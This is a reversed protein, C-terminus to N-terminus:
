INSSYIFLYHFYVNFFTLNPGDQPGGKGGMEKNNTRDQQLKWVIHLIQFSVSKTWSLKKM